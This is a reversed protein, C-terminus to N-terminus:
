CVFFSMLNNMGLHCITCTYSLVDSIYKLNNWLADVILQSSGTFLSPTGAIIQKSALFDRVSLARIWAGVNERRCVLICVIISAVWFSVVCSHFASIGVDDFWVSTEAWQQWPLCVAALERVKNDSRTNYSYIQNLVRGSHPIPLPSIIGHMGLMVVKGVHFSGGTHVSYPM